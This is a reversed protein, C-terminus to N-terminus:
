TKHCCVCEKGVSIYISSVTLNDILTKPINGINKREGKGEPKCNNYEGIQEYYKKKKTNYTPQKTSYPRFKAM